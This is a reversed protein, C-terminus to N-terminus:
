VQPGHVPTLGTEVITIPVAIKELRAHAPNAGLDYVTGAETWRTFASLSPDNSFWAYPYHAYPAMAAPDQTGSWQGSYANQWASAEDSQMVWGAFQSPDGGRVCVVLEDLVFRGLIKNILALEFGSEQGKRTASAGDIIARVGAFDSADGYNAIAAWANARRDRPNLSTQFNGSAM